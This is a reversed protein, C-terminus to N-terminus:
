VRGPDPPTKLAEVDDLLDNWREQIELFRELEGSGRAGLANVTQTVLASVLAFPAAPSNFFSVAAYPSVLNLLTKGSFAM